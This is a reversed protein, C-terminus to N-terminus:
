AILEGVGHTQEGFYKALLKDSSRAGWRDLYRRGFETRSLLQYRVVNTAVVPAVAWPPTWPLELDRMGEARMFYTLMSLLRARNYSGRLGALNRYHLHRQAEVIANALQPGAASVSSQTVLMHYNLRHQEIESDCLWDENVGILWGVYKWLHMIARSEARTVRVGLLRVGLLLAGNFLGLTAAQDTQNIPQGWHDVDWRGNTEFAHNVLAHM